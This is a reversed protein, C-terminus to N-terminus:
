NRTIKGILSSKWSEFAQATTSRYTDCTCNYSFQRSFDSFNQLFMQENSHERIVSYNCERTINTKEYTKQFTDLTKCVNLFIFYIHIM